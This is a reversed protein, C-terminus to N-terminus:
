KWCQVLSTYYYILQIIDFLIGDQNL